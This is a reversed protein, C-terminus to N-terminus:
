GHVEATAPDIGAGRLVHAIAARRTFYEDMVAGRAGIVGWSTPKGRRNQAAIKIAGVCRAREDMIFQRGTSRSKSISLRRKM